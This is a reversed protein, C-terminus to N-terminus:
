NKDATANNQSQITAGIKKLESLIAENSSVTANVQNNQSHITAGIKNFESLVSLIASSVTTNIQAALKQLESLIAENTTEIISHAKNDGSRSTVFPKPQPNGECWDVTSLGFKYKFLARKKSVYKSIDVLSKTFNYGIAAYEFGESTEYKIPRDSRYDSSNDVNNSNEPYICDFYFKPNYFTLKELGQIKGCLNLSLIEGGRINKIRLYNGITGAFIFM